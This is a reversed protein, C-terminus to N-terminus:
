MDGFVDSDDVEEDSDPPSDSDDSDRVYMIHGGGGGGGNGGYAGYAGGGRAESGGGRGGADRPLYNLFQGRAYAERGEGQHEFPLAVKARADREADTVGLNFPVRRQLRLRALEEEAALEAAFAAPNAASNAVSNAASNAVSNAGVGRAAPSGEGGGGGGGGGEGRRAFFDGRAAEDEAAELAALADEGVAEFAVRIARSARTVDSSSRSRGNLHMPRGFAVRIWERETKTKGLARAHTAVLQAAVPAADDDSAGGNPIIVVGRPIPRTELLCSAAERVRRAVALTPAAHREPPASSSSQDRADRFYPADRSEAARSESAGHRVFVAVVAVRPDERCARVLAWASEAGASEAIEAVCDIAVAAKARASPAYGWLGSRRGRASKSKSSPAEASTASAAESAEGEDPASAGAPEPDDDDAAAAPAAHAVEVPDEAKAAKRPGFLADLVRSLAAAVAGVDGLHPAGPSGSGPDDGRAEAGRARAADALWGHPDRTLDVVATDAPLAHARPPFAGSVLVTRQAHSRGAAAAAAHARLLHSFCAPGEDSPSAADDCVAVLCALGDDPAVAGRACRVAGEMAASGGAEPGRGLRRSSSHGSPLSVVRELVERRAEDDSFFCNFETM